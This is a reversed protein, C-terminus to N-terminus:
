SNGYWKWLIVSNNVKFVDVCKARNDSVAAGVMKEKADDKEPSCATIASVVVASSSVM